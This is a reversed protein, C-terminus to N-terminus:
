NDINPQVHLHWRDLDLAVMAHMGETHDYVCGADIDFDVRQPDALMEVIETLPRPVHGHVMKKNGLIALDVHMERINLMAEKDDYPEEAEFNLGAHVLLFDSLMHLHPLKQFFDLYLFPIEDIRNVRFSNLTETGGKSFFDEDQVPNALANLLYQEHNGRLTVIQHGQTRLEFIFDVVGRSDPGKNIYDGLLFLRDTKELRVEELVLRRFTAACGHMDSIAIRRSL